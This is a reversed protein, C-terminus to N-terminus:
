GSLAFTSKLSPGITFADLVLKLYRVLFCLSFFLIQWICAEAGQLERMVDEDYSTFDSVVVVKLKPDSIENLPRRSLAIISTIAPNRICQQLVEAGIFGTTGTLIVKM